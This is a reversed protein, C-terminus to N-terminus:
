QPIKNFKILQNNSKQNGLFTYSVAGRDITDIKKIGIHGWAMTGGDMKTVRGNISLSKIVLFASLFGIYPLKDAIKSIPRSLGNKSM